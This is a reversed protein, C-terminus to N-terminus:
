GMSLPPSLSAKKIKTEDVEPSLLPIAEERKEVFKVSYSFLKKLLMILHNVSKETVDIM